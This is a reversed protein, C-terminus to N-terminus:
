SFLVGSLTNEALESMVQYGKENPHVGDPTYENMLGPRDDVMASYYDLELGYSGAHEKLKANVAQITSPPDIIEKAWEYIYVPLISSLVVKIGHARAIHSMSFINDTIMKITSPGTNGAIDNTGALIVVVHPELDIVDQKFRILMQPTTQGGIGRNVYSRERFYRPYLNSWEETISDGMFIVRKEDAQPLGLTQNEDAYRKLNPWDQNIDQEM